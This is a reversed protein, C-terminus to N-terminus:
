KETPIWMKYERGALILKKLQERDLVYKNNTDVISFGKSVLFWELQEMFHSLGYKCNHELEWQYKIRDKIEQPIKNTM